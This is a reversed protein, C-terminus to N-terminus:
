FIHILSLYKTGDLTAYDASKLATVKGNVTQAVAMSEIEGSAVSATYIVIDDKDFEQDTTFRDRICM